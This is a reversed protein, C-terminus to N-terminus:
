GRSIASDADDLSQLLEDLIEAAREDSVEQNLGTDPAYLMGVLERARAIAADAAAAMGRATDAKAAEPEEAATEAQAGKGAIGLRRALGQVYDADMPDLSGKKDIEELYDQLDDVTEPLLGGKDLIRRILQRTNNDNAM